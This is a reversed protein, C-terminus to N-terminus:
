SARLSGAAARCIVLFDEATLSAGGILGGDIDPQAFLIAANGPKISGGYQIRVSEAIAPSYAALQARISAHMAQAQEPSATQGTGIAWVPEYAVIVREFAQIGVAAVVAEIQAGVVANMKGAQREELTEGVCVVPTLGAALAKQTKRGVVENTEGFLTRRESHGVLVYQCGVDRIMEASVEGTYAGTDYEACSQAGVGLGAGAVQAVVQPIYVFPPCVGIDIDKLEPRVAEIDAVLRDAMARTGNLKWNGIVIPTRM